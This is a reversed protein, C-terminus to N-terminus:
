SESHQILFKFSSTCQYTIFVSDLSIKQTSDVVLLSFLAEIHWLCHGNLTVIGGACHLLALLCERLHQWAASKREREKGEIISYDLGKSSILAQDLRHTFRRSRSYNRIKVLSVISRLDSLSVVLFYIVVNFGCPEM